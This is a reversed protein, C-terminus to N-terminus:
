LVIEPLPWKNRSGDKRIAVASRALAVSDPQRAVTVGVGVDLRSGTGVDVGAAVAIGSGVAVSVGTGVAVGVAVGVKVGAGTNM